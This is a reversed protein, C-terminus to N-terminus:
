LTSPSNLLLNLYFGYAGPVADVAAQVVASDNTTGDGKAGSDRINYLCAGQLNVDAKGTSGRDYYISKYGM